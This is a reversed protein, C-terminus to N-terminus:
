RDLWWKFFGWFVPVVFGGLTLGLALPVFRLYNKLGGYRLILSKAIWMLLFAPWNYEVAFCVALAYGIPHLPLGPFTFSIKALIATFIAGFGMFGIELWNPGKPTFVWERIRSIALGAAAERYGGSVFQDEGVRYVWHLYTILCTAAGVTFAVPIWPGFRRLSVGSEQAVKLAALQHGMIQGRHDRNIWYMLSFQVLPGPQQGLTGFITTFTKEPDLYYLELIPPGVQAYVRTMTINLLFFFGYFAIAIALSMGSAVGWAILFLTGVILVRGATRDSTPEDGPDPQPGFTFAAELAHGLRRREAWVLLFFLVAWAGASQARTYPFGSADWGLERWAMAYGFIELAKRCLYFFWSSFLIDTPILYCIGLHLTGWTLYMPAAAKWPSPLAEITSSAEWDLRLYPVNPVISNLTNLSEIVASIAFGVWFLTGGARGGFGANRCLELPLQVCPFSLKDHDIWRRRLIANWAWMTAGLVTFWVLWCAVPIAWARVREPEWFNVHGTYLPEVIAPDQPVMWTPIFQRFPGMRDAQTERFPYVYMPFLFQAEDQAAISAAVTSIGYIVAMEAPQLAWRSFRRKLFANVVALLFVWFIVGTFLTHVSPFSLFVRDPIIKFIMQYISVVIAGFFGLFLGRLTM